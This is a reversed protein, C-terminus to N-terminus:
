TDAQGPGTPTTNNQSGSGNQTTKKKEKKAWRVIAILRVECCRCDGPGSVDVLMVSRRRGM